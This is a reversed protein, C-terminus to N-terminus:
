KQGEVLLFQLLAEPNDKEPDFNVASRHAPLWANEDVEGLSLCSPHRYPRNSKFHPKMQLRSKNNWRNIELTVYNDKSKAVEFRYELDSNALAKYAKPLEDVLNLAQNGYVLIAKGFYRNQFWFAPGHSKKSAEAAVRAATSAPEEKVKGPSAQSAICDPSAPSDSRALSSAPELAEELETSISSSRSSSGSTCTAVFKHNPEEGESISVPQSPPKAGAVATSGGPNATAAEAAAEPTKKEEFVARTVYGHTLKFVQYAKAKKPIPQLVSEQNGSISRSAPPVPNGACAVPAAHALNGAGVPSLVQADVNVANKDSEM